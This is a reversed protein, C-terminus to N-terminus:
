EFNDLEKVDLSTRLSYALAKLAFGEVQSCENNMLMIWISPIM